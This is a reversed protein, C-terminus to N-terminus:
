IENYHSVSRYAKGEENLFFVEASLKGLVAKYYITISEMSSLVEILEFHLDPLRSLGLAWFERVQDKGQLRGSPENMARVIFPTTLEIDDTYHSLIKELDHANWAAVWEQAFQRAEVTTIM